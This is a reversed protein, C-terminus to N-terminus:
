SPRKWYAAITAQTRRVEARYDAPLGEVDVEVHGLAANFKWARACRFCVAVDGPDPPASTPTAPWPTTEDLVAGCVCTFEPVAFVAFRRM